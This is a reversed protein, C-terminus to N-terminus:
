RDDRSSPSVNHSFEESKVEYINCKLLKYIEPNSFAFTKLKIIWDVYTLNSMPDPLRSVCQGQMAEDGYVLMYDVVEEFSNETCGLVTDEIRFEPANM